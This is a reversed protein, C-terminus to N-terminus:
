KSAPSAGAPAHTPASDQIVPLAPSATTLQPSDSQALSGLLGSSLSATVVVRNKKQIVQATRLLDRLGNNVPNAALPQALGQAITVLNAMAAAQSTAEDTNAAIEEM